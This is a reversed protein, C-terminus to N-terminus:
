DGLLRRKLKISTSRNIEDVAIKGFKSEIMNLFIPDTHYEMWARDRFALVQEASIHKTPLPTCDYSHQSYGSYTEPLKWGKSVADKHLPSGPYAMASYMNVMETNLERALDLTRQMTELNDEPLGFIYNAAVNIGHDRVKAVINHIKLDEFKGKTVDVRIRKDGSEIGMGFWNVGAKKMIDLYEEKVTDVRAYCWINFKYGREIILNCLALFHNVNLVFMEDAIKLNVVGMKALKDLENITFEPDWFKFTRDGFPSAICCFHCAFPCNLSTYIAAFNNRNCGNSYSHWLATRYRDMQLLDWAVGPLDRQLDEAKISPRRNNIVVTDEFRYGLGDIKDLDKFDSEILDVITYLGEGLAVFDIEPHKELTERPLAAIHGGIFMIKLKPTNKRILLTLDVAGQMNQTSANPQQGYVVFCILKPDLHEIMRCALDDDYRLAECDLIDVSLNRTRCHNALMGAWIPPEIASFDNSLDQYIKKSGNPHVFLIDLKSGM